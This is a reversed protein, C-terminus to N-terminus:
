GRLLDDVAAYGSPVSVGDKKAGAALLAKVPRPSRRRTWYSDVCARVALMLPTESKRNKTNVDAGKHILVDLTDNSMHWAAVHLATSDPAIGFYGDGFYRADVPVGLDILLAVGDDNDNGAFEAVLEGGQDILEPILSPERAAIARAERAEGRACAAVLADVGDLKLPIDRRAMSALVDSRGRRAAVAISSRGARFGGGHRLDRAVVYPDAGRDLLLDIIQLSNDSILAHHLVTRGFRSMQNVDAGHDLVLRIGEYDHWDSKRLLMMNLSDKTLKGSDLLLAFADNDPGEVSHYPVEGDNPDAGRELLLRTLPAHFAVGAAGYLVSEWERHPRHSEDFFGSNANAGADLLATAARVFADARERRERLFASFCLHTLADVDRPGGRAKALSADHALFRRVGEDDGLMAAVHIDNAISPNADLILQAKSASGHWFATEIFQDHLRPEPSM